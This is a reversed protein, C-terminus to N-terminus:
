LHFRRLGAPEGFKQGHLFESGDPTV